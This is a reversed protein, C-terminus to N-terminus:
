YIVATVGLLDKEAFELNKDAFECIILKGPRCKGRDM